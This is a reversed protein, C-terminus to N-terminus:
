QGVIVQSTVLNCKGLSVDNFNLIAAGKQTQTTTIELIQSDLVAISSFQVDKTVNDREVHYMPEEGQRFGGCDILKQKSFMVCAYTSNLVVAKKLDM